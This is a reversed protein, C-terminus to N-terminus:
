EYGWGKAAMLVGWLPAMFLFVGCTFWMSDRLRLWGFAAALNALLGSVLFCAALAAAAIAFM